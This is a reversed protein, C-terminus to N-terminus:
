TCQARDADQGGRAVTGEHVGSVRTQTAKAFYLCKQEDTTNVNM